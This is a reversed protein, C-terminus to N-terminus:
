YYESIFYKSTMECLTSLDVGENSISKFNKNIEDIQPQLNKSPLEQSILQQELEGLGVQLLEFNEKFQDLVELSSKSRDFLKNYKKVTKLMERNQIKIDNFDRCLINLKDDPIENPNEM